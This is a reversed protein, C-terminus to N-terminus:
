TVQIASISTLTWKFLVQIASISTLTWKFLVQDIIRPNKIGATGNFM